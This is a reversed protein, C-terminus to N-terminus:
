VIWGLERAKDNAVQWVQALLEHDDTQTRGRLILQPQGAAKYYVAKFVSKPLTVIIDGGQVTVAVRTQKKQRARAAEEAQLAGKTSHLAFWKLKAPDTEGASALAVITRALKRRAFAANVLGGKKLERWADEWAADILRRTEPGVYKSIGNLPM